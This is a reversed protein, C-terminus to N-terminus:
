VTAPGRMLLLDGAVGVLVDVVPPDDLSGVPLVESHLLRIVADLVSLNDLKDMTQSVACEVRMIHGSGHRRMVLLDGAVDVVVDGHGGLVEPPDVDDVPVRGSLHPVGNVGLDPQDVDVGAGREPEGPLVVGLPAKHLMLHGAIPINVLRVGHPIYLLVPVGLVVLVLGGDLLLHHSMLEDRRLLCLQAEPVLESLQLELHQDGVLLIDLIVIKGTIRCLPREQGAADRVVDSLVGVVLHMQHAVDQHPVSGAEAQEEVGAEKHEVEEPPPPQTVVNVLSLELSEACCALDEESSIEEVKEWVEEIVSSKEEMVIEGGIQELKHQSTVRDRVKVIEHGLEGAVLNGVGDETETDEDPAQTRHIDEDLERAETISM